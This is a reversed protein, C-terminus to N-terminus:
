KEVNFNNVNDLYLVLEEGIAKTRNDNLLSDLIHQWPIEEKRMNWLEENTLISVVGNYLHEGTKIYDIGMEFFEGNSQIQDWFENDEFGYYEIIESALLYPDRSSVLEFEHEDCRLFLLLNFSSAPGSKEIELIITRENLRDLVIQHNEIVRRFLTSKNFFEKKFSDFDSVLDLEVQLNLITLLKMDGNHDDLLDNLPISSSPISNDDPEISNFYLYRDDLAIIIRGVDNTFITM